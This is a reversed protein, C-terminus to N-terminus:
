NSELPPIRTARILEAVRKCLDGEAMNSEWYDDAGLALGELETDSDHLPSLVVVKMGAAAPCGALQELVELGNLVPLWIGLLLLDPTHAQVLQLAAAGDPAEWVVHGAQRLSEGFQLMRDRDNEALVIRARARSGEDGFSQM